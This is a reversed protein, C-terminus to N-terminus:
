GPERVATGLLTGSGILFARRLAEDTISASIDAVSEQGRDRVAAAEDTRGLANLSRAQAAYVDLGVRRMGADAVMAACEALHELAIEHYGAAAEIRAATYRVIAFQDRM